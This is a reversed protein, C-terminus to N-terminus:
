INIKKFLIPYVGIGAVVMIVYRLFDFFSALISLFMQNDVLEEPDVILGFVAKLSLRIIMIVAIGLAFRAINKILNRHNSFNVYKQEIRVGVVFGVLTGIMKALAETNFYFQASDFVANNLTIINYVFLAVLAVVSVILIVKYLLNLNDKKGIWKYMFLTIVYGLLGGVIVDSLYHVGIYMRSIAVLVTIVLAIIFLYRKRFFHYVGFFLTSASQTHGSPMSYGGSTEPRLNEITSDVMFPRPRMIIFKLLSNIGLSIFVSIGLREGVKKDICWYIGGLVAIVILEEGFLTLFEFIFDLFDNRISQLWRIIQLEFEM